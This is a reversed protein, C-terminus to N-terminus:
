PIKSGITFMWGLASESASSSSIWVSGSQMITVTRSRVVNGICVRGSCSDETSESSSESVRIDQPAPKQREVSLISLQASSTWSAIESGGRIVM